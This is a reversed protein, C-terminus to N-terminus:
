LCSSISHFLPYSNTINCLFQPQACCRNGIHDVSFRILNGVCGNLPHHRQQFPPLIDGAHGPDQQRLVAGSDDTHEDVLVLFILAMRQLIEKNRGRQVAEGSFNLGIPLKHHHFPCLMRFLDDPKCRHPIHIPDHDDTKAILIIGIQAAMHPNGKDNVIAITRMRLSNHVDGNVIEVASILHATVEPFQPM